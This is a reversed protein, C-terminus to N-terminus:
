EFDQMSVLNEFILIVSLLMADYVGQKGLFHAPLGVM